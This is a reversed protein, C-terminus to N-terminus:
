HFLFTLIIFHIIYLRINFIVTVCLVVTNKSKGSVEQAEQALEKLMNLKEEGNLIMEDTKTLEEQVRDM